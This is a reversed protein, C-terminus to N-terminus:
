QGESIDRMLAATGAVTTSFALVVPALHFSRRPPIRYASSAESAYSSPSTQRAVKWSTSFDVCRQRLQVISRKNAPGKPWRSGSQGRFLQANFSGRALVTHKSTAERCLPARNEM